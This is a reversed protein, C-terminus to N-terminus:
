RAFQGAAATWSQWCSDFDSNDAILLWVRGAHILILVRHWQLNLGEFIALWGFELNDRQHIEFLCSEEYM